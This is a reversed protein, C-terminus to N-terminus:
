GSPTLGNFQRWVIAGLFCSIIYCDCNIKPAPLQLASIFCHSISSCVNTSSFIVVYWEYSHRLRIFLNTNDQLAVRPSLRPLVHCSLVSAPRSLPFLIPSCGSSSSAHKAITSTLGRSPLPRHTTPISPLPALYSVNQGGRPSPWGESWRQPIHIDAQWFCRLHHFGDTYANCGWCTASCRSTRHWFTWSVYCFCSVAFGSGEGRRCRM